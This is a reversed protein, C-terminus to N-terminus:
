QTPIYVIGIIIINYTVDKVCVPATSHTLLILNYLLLKTYSIDCETIYSTRM